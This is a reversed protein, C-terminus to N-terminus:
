NEYSIYKKIFVGIVLKTPEQGTEILLLQESVEVETINTELMETLARSVLICFQDRNVNKEM